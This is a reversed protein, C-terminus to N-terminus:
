HEFGAAIFHKSFIDFVRVRATGEQKGEKKWATSEYGGPGRDEEWRALRIACEDLQKSFMYQLKEQRDQRSRGDYRGSRHKVRQLITLVGGALENVLTTVEGGEHSTEMEIRGQSIDEIRALDEATLDPHLTDDEWHDAEASTAPISGPPLSQALANSSGGLRNNFPSFALYIPSKRTTRRTLEKALHSITRREAPGVLKSSGGTGSSFVRHRRSSISKKTTSARGSM